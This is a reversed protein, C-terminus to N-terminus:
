ETFALVSPLKCSMVHNLGNIQQRNGVAHNLWNIMETYCNNRSTQSIEAYIPSNRLYSLNLFLCENNM